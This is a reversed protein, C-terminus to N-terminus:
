RVRARNGNWRQTQHPCSKRVQRRIHAEDVCALWAATSAATLSAVRRQRPPRSSRSMRSRRQARRCSGRAPRSPLITGTSCFSVVFCMASSARSSFFTEQNSQDREALRMDASSLPSCYKSCQSCYQDSPGSESACTLHM